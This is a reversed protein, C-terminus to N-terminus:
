IGPGSGWPMDEPTVVYAESPRGQLGRAYVAVMVRYGQYRAPLAAQLKAQTRRAERDAEFGKLTAWVAEVALIEESEEDIAVYDVEVGRRLLRRELAPSLGLERVLIESAHRAALEEWAKSYVTAARSRAEGPIIGAALRATLPEVVAFWSRILPDAVSYLGRGGFLPEDRRILGLDQLIRMYRSAHSVPMGAKSAAESIRTAGRAVARLLAMYPHPDRFEERLLFLPEDWLLGHPGFLRLYAELPELSDDLLRLYHPIGGVLSYAEVLEVPTYRPLFAQIRWPELEGLRIRLRARAYLPAGGGIVGREMLGVLSGAIVLIIRTGPLVQDVFWQLDAVVPEAVRVWYTFEDIVIAARRDGLMQSVLRLLGRLDEFRIGALGEIGLQEEISRALGELNQRHGWLGAQYYAYPKGRLWELVLRTKGVRRRGYVVVLGPEGSEWLGRLKGLEAERDVFVGPEVM